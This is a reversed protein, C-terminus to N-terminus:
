HNRRKPKAFDSSRSPSMSDRLLLPVSSPLFLKVEEAPAVTDPESTTLLSEKHLLSAVSQMNALQAGKWLQIQRYLNNRKEQLDTSQKSSLKGMMQSM